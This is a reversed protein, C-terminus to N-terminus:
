WELPGRSAAHLLGALMPIIFLASALLGAAGLERAAISWPIMVVLAGEVVLVLLIGVGFRLPIRTTAGSPPNAPEGSQGDSPPQPSRKRHIWWVGLVLPAAMALIVLVGVSEALDL